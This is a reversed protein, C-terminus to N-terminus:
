IDPLPPNKFHGNLRIKSKMDNLQLVVPIFNKLHEYVYTLRNNENTIQLLALEQSFTLGIKHGIQFVSEFDKLVEVGVSLKLLSLLESVQARVKKLLVLDTTDIQEDEFFHVDGMPYPKEETKVRFEEVRFRRTARTSIDMKGDPYRNIIEELVLETGVELKMGSEFPPLGFTMGTEDCEKILQRYRPEFIHLNVQEGPFAVLSLPFLPLEM